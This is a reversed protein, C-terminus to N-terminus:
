IIIWQKLWMRKNEWQGNGLLNKICTSMPLYSYSFMQEGSGPVPQNSWASEPVVIVDFLVYLNVRHKHVEAKRFVQIYGMIEM